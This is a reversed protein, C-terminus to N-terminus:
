WSSGDEPLSAPWVIGEGLLGGGAERRLDNYGSASAERTKGLRRVCDGLAERAEKGYRVFGDNDVSKAAV